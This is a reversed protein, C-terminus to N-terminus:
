IGRGRPSRGAGQRAWPSLGEPFASWDSPPNRRWPTELSQGRIELGREWEGLKRGLLSRAVRSALSFSCLEAGSGALVASWPRRPEWALEMAAYHSAVLGLYLGGNQIAAGSVRGALPIARNVRNAGHGSVRLFGLMLLAGGFEQVLPTPAWTGGLGQLSRVGKSTLVFAGAELTLGSFGSFVSFAPGRVGWAALRSMGWIRGLRFGIGGATMGLLFAPNGAEKLGRDLGRFVQQGWPGEERLLALEQAARQSVRSPIRGGGESLGAYIRAALPAPGQGELSHALNLLGQYFIEPDKEQSLSLWLSLQNGSNRTLVARDERALLGLAEHLSHVKGTNIAQSLQGSGGELLLTLQLSRHRLSFSSPDEAKALGPEWGRFGRAWPIKRGGLSAASIM